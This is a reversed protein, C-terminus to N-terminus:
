RKGSLEFVILNEDRLTCAFHKQLHRELGRYHDLWWFCPWAFAICTAGARRLRELEDIAESDDAPQGWYRGGREVFPLTTRGALVAGREGPDAWQQDDVLIYSEGGPVLRRLAESAAQRRRMWQYGASRKWAEQDADIGRWLLEGALLRSRLEFMELNRQNKEDVPKCAYDNSGHVRYLGLPQPAAALTGYLPALTMLYTDSHQRFLSEPIPLVQALFQRSWANGSTPPGVCADPGEDIVKRSCDGAALERGPVQRGTRKGGADIEWMNWQVRVVSPDAFHRVAEEVASPLLADDADLFLVVDGSAAGFGANQTSAMGGNPKFVPLLRSGYSAILDRSEDTSGDDVVIVETQPWTQGLASDIAAGLFRAYNYSSIVISAKAATHM